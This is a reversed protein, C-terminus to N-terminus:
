AKGTPRLLVTVLLTSDEVGSMAHEEGGPLHLSQGAVLERTAGLVTVAVRGQLCQVTVEGNVRRAPKGQGAPLQFVRIMRSGTATVPSTTAAQAAAKGHPGLGFVEGPPAHRVAM